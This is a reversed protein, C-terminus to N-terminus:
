KGTEVKLGEHTVVLSEVAYRSENANLDGFDVRKPFANKVKWQRVPEHQENLLSIVMDRRPVQGMNIADFWDFFENDNAFTGRKLTIDSQKVLGPMKQNQQDPSAGSRYEIVEVEVSLGSVETFDIRTSGWQVTFHFATYPYSM